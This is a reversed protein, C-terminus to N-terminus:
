EIIIDTPLALNSDSESASHNSSQPTGPVVPELVPNAEGNAGRTLDPAPVDGPVSVNLESMSVKEPASSTTPVPESDAIRKQVQYQTPSPTSSLAQYAAQSQSDYRTPIEAAKNRERPPVLNATYAQVMEDSVNHGSQRALNWIQRALEMKIEPRVTDLGFMYDTVNQPNNRCSKAFWNVFALTQELNNDAVRGLMPNLLRSVLDVMEQDFTLFSDVYCQVQQIKDPASYLPQLRILVLGRGRVPRPLMSGEYRGDVYCLATNNSRWLYQLYGKTGAVDEVSYYSQQGPYQKVQIQSIEMREWLGVIIEPKQILLNMMNLDCDVSYVPLRRYISVNELISMAKQRDAGSLNMQAIASEANQRAPKRTTAPSIPPDIRVGQQAQAPTMTEQQTRARPTRDAFNRLRLGGQNKSASGSGSPQANYASQSPYADPLYPKQASYPTSGAYVGSNYRTDQDDYYGGVSGSSPAYQASDEQGLSISDSLTLAILYITMPLISKSTVMTLRSM